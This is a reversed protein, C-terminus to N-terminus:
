HKWYPYKASTVALCFKHRSSDYVMTYIPSDLENVEQANKLKKHMSYYLSDASTSQLDDKEEYRNLLTLHEEAEIQMALTSAIGKLKTLEKEEFISIQTYYNNVTIFTAIVVVAILTFAMVRRYSDTLKWKFKSM